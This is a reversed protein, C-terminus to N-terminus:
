KIPKERRVPLAPIPESIPLSLNNGPLGGNLQAQEKKLEEKKPEAPPAATVGQLPETSARYIWSSGGTWRIGSPETLEGDGLREFDLQLTKRKIIKTGPMDIPREETFGNSLGAIFISFKNTKAKANKDKGIPDVDTWIAVGTVSRPFQDKKSVPIATESITVSNKIGFRGTPDERKRIAEEVSPLVEDTHRTHRDLTVLDIDPVLVHPEDRPDLNYVRYIMYWIIKTGRGPVKEVIIRPDQFRFHLNWVDEKDNATLQPEIERENFGTRQAQSASAFGLSLLTALALLRITGM